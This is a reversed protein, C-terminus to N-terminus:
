DDTGEKDTIEMFCGIPKCDCHENGAVVLGCKRCVFRRDERPKGSM